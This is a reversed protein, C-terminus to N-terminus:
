LAKKVRAALAEARRLRAQAFSEVRGFLRLFFDKALDSISYNLILQAIFIGGGFIAAGWWFDASAFIVVLTM